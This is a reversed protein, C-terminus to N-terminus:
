FLTLNIWYKYFKCFKQVETRINYCGLIDHRARCGRKFNFYVLIKVIILFYFLFFLFFPFVCALYYCETMVIITFIIIIIIFLM